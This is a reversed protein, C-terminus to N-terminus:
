VASNSASNGSCFAFLLFQFINFSSSIEINATNIQIEYAENIIMDGGHQPESKM